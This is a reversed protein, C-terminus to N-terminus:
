LRISTKKHQPKKLLQELLNDASREQQERKLYFGKLYPELSDVNKPAKITFTLDYTDGDVIHGFWDL